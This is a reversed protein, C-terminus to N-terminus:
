KTSKFYSIIEEANRKNVIKISVLDEFSANKVNEITKFVKIIALRKKSGIGPIIELENTFASKMRLTKNYTIAFRHAENRISVLLKLIPSNIELMLNSKNNPFVIEEQKKAIGIFPIQIKLEDFAKKVGHLQSKGGDVLFLDPEDINEMKKRKFHRLIVEYMSRVDDQSNFTKIKYRRYHSKNPKGKFSSVVSGVTYSGQLTSIDICEILYVSKGIKLKNKLDNAILSFDHKNQIKINFNRKLSKEAEFIALNIWKNKSINSLIQFKINIKSNKNLWEFFFELDQIPKPFLILYPYNINHLYHSKLGSLIIEDFNLYSGEKLYYEQKQIIKNKKVSLIVLSLNSSIEKYGIIDIYDNNGTKEEISLNKLANIQNRYRAAKEYELDNSFSEMKLNWKSLLNDSNGQLFSILNDVNEKYDEQPINEVCPASCLKLDYNLCPRKNKNIKIEKLCDCIPFLKRIQKITERLPKVNTQKEFYMNYEIKKNRAILLRPFNETTTIELYPYQKDDM